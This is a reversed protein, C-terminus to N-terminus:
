NGNVIGPDILRPRLILQQSAASYTREWFFIPLMLDIELVNCM